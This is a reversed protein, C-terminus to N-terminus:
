LDLYCSKKKYYDKEVKKYDKSLFSRIKEKNFGFEIKNTKFDIIIPKKLIEPHEILLNIAEAYSLDEFDGEMNKYFRSYIRLVDAFGNTSLIMITELEKKTLSNKINVRREFYPIGKEQFWDIVQRCSLNSAETYVIIM